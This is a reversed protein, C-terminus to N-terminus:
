EGDRSGDSSSGGPLLQVIIRELLEDLIETMRIYWAAFFPLRAFVNEVGFQSAHAGVVTSALGPLLSDVLERGHSGSLKLYIKNQMM